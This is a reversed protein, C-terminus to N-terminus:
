KFLRNRIKYIIQIPNGSLKGSYKIQKEYNSPIRSNWKNYFNRFLLSRYDSFFDDRYESTYCNGRLRQSNSSNLVSEISCKSYTIENNILDFLIEARKSNIMLLSIGKKLEKWPFKYKDKGGYDGLTFDTIRDITALKCNACSLRNCTSNMFYYGFFTAYNIREYKKGNEFKVEFSHRIYDHKKKRFSISKIRSDYKISLQNIYDNFLSTSGVGHCIFDCTYLNDYKKNLFLYLGKNQCPTGTFLVMKGSELLQQTRVYMGTVDSGIYKSGRLYELEDSKTIEVHRLLLSNDFTAGMVIGKNKLIWKALVTFIGGSSSNIRDYENNSWCRYFSHKNHNSVEVNNIAPCVKRCAGCETCISENVKPILFGEANLELNIANVQCRDVCAGCGTCENEHCIKMMDDRWNRM